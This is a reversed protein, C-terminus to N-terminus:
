LFNDTYFAIDLRFRGAYIWFDKRITVMNWSNNGCFSFFVGTIYSNKTAKHFFLAVINNSIEANQLASIRVEDIRVGFIRM